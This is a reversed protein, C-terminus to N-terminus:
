HMERELLEFIITRNTVHPLSLTSCERFTSLCNYDGDNSVMFMRKQRVKSDSIKVVM